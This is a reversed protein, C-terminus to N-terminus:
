MFRPPTVIMCFLANRKPPSGLHCSFILGGNGMLIKNMWNQLWPPRNVCEEHLAAPTFNLEMIATLQRSATCQEAAPKCYRPRTNTIESSILQFDTTLFVSQLVGFSKKQVYHHHECDGPLTTKLNGRACAAWRCAALWTHPQVMQCQSIFAAGQLKLCATHLTCYAFAYIPAHLMMTRAPQRPEQSIPAIHCLGHASRPLTSIANRCAQEALVSWFEECTSEKQTKRENEKWRTGLIVSSQSEIRRGQCQWGCIRGFSSCSALLYM